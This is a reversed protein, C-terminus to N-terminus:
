STRDPSGNDHVTYTFTDTGTFGPAPTYSFTGNANVAVVGGQASSTGASATLNAHPTDPDTDNTLLNGTVAVNPTSPSTSVALTVGALASNAGNFTDAVGTPSDNAATVTVDRSQTNSAHNASQGDDVRFTVTRTTTNPTDSTTEYKVTRVAT